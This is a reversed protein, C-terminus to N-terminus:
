YTGLGAAIRQKQMTTLPRGTKASTTPMASRGSIPDYGGQMAMGSYVGAAEGIPATVTSAYGRALDSAAGTMGQVASAIGQQQRADAEGVEIRGQLVQNKANQVNTAIEATRSPDILEMARGTVDTVREKEGRRAQNAAQAKALTEQQAITNMESRARGSTPDIGLGAMRRQEAQRAKAGQASVDAMARGAAGEYDPQALSTLQKGLQARQTMEEGAMTIAQDTLGGFKDKINNWESELDSSLKTFDVKNDQMTKIADWGRDVNQMAKNFMGKTSELSGQWMQMYKQALPAASKAAAEAAAAQRSSSEMESRMMGMQMDELERQRAKDAKADAEEQRRKRGQERIWAYTGM